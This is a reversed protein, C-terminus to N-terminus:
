NRLSELSTVWVNFRPCETRIKDLGMKMALLPGDVVKKYRPIIKRIRKSPATIQNDNIDEPTAFAARIKRLREVSEKPMDITEAFADVDSFLLGEFEHRQVYPFAKEPHWRHDIRKRIHRTLDEELEDVTKDKKQRFGYFDVLSTVVDFSRLLRVMEAVLREVSVNGGGSQGRARGLQIPTLDVGRGRLHETLVQKVFEEETQGEVSIAVRIM